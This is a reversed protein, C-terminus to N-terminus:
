PESWMRVLQSRLQLLPLRLARSVGGAELAKLSKDLEFLLRRRGPDRVQSQIWAVAVLRSGGTVPTVQHISGAPYVIVDGADGRFRREGTDGQIVLEGGEYDSADNLCITMAIDTRLPQRPGAMIANDLHEGYYMGEDYRNIRPPTMSKLRVANVFDESDSLSRTLDRSIEKAVPDRLPLQLSRKVSDDLRGATAVGDVFQAGALRKVIAECLGRDIVSELVINM